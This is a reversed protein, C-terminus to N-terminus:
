STNGNTDWHLSNWASTIAMVWAAHSMRQFQLMFLRTNMYVPLTLAIPAMLLKQCVSPTFWSQLPLRIWSAFFVTHCKGPNMSVSNCLFSCASSCAASPEVKFTIPCFAITPPSSTPTIDTKGCLFTLCCASKSHTRLIKGRIISWRQFESSSDLLISEHM